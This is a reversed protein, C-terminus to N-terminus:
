LFLYLIILVLIVMGLIALFLGRRSKKHKEQISDKSIDKNDLDALSIELEVLYQNHEKINTIFGILLATLLFAGHVLLDIGDLEIKGYKLNYYTASGLIYIFAGSLAISIIIWRYGVKFFNIRKIITDRIPESIMEMSRINYYQNISYFLFLILITSAILGVILTTYDSGYSILLNVAGAILGINLIISLWVGKKMKISISETRNNLIQSLSDMTVINKTFSSKKAEEWTHTLDDLKM